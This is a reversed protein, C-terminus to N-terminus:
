YRADAIPKVHKIKRKRLRGRYIFPPILGWGEEKLFVVDESPIERGVSDFKNKIIM